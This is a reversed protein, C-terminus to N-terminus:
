TSTSIFPKAVRQVEVVQTHSLFLIDLHQTTKFLGSFAQGVCEVLAHAQEDGGSLYLAVQPEPVEAYSVRVLYAAQVGNKGSLCEVLKAKLEREAVGDQEGLFLVRKTKVPFM